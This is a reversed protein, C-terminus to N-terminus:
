VNQGDKETSVSVGDDYSSKMDRVRKRMEDRREEGFERADNRAQTLNAVAARHTQEMHFPFLFLGPYLGGILAVLGFWVLMREQWGDDSWQSNREEKPAGFGESWGSGPGSARGQSAYYARRRRALEHLYPDFNPEARANPGWTTGGPLHSSARGRLFDYASNIAQFRAHAEAPPLSRAHQSDPHHCRVLDYYRAKIDSQSAGRSLHFIQHPSPRPNIPFPFLNNANTHNNGSTQSANSALRVPDRHLIPFARRRREPTTTPHMDRFCLFPLSPARCGLGPHSPGPLMRHM